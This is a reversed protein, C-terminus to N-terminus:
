TSLLGTVLELLDTVLFPKALIVAGKKEYTPLEERVKEPNATLFIVPIDYTKPDARLLDFLQIGSVEPLRVDFILVKPPAQRISAHALWGLPYVDVKLGEDELFERVVQQIGTDDEIIGVDVTRPINADTSVM